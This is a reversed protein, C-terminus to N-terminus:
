KFSWILILFFPILDSGLRSQGKPDTEQTTQEDATKKREFGIVPTGECKGSSLMVTGPACVLCVKSNSPDCFMCNSDTNCPKCLNESIFYGPGCAVCIRKPSLFANKCNADMPFLLSTAETCTLGDLSKVFGEKCSLCVKNALYYECNLIKDSPFCGGDSQFFGKKCIICEFPHVQTTKECNPINILVCNTVNDVVMLGYGDPCSECTKQNKFTRCNVAQAEKCINKDLFYGSQCEMCLELSSYYNCNEIWDPPDITNCVNDFLYMNSQCQLCEDLSRYIKCGFIGKPYEHCVKGTYDLYYNQECTLCRNEDQAYEICYDVVDLILCATGSNYKFYKDECTECQYSLENGLNITVSVQACNEINLPGFCLTSKYGSSYDEIYYNAQCESCEFNGNTNEPSWRNCNQGFFPVCLSDGTQITFIAYETKCEQCKGPQNEFYQNCNEVRGQLCFKKNYLYYENSCKTCILANQEVGYEVCNTINNQVCNNNILTFGVQCTECFKEGNASARLCYNLKEVCKTGTFNPMFGPICQRCVHKLNDYDWGFQLCNKIFKLENFQGRQVYSSEVCHGLSDLGKVAIYDGDCESCGYRISGLNSQGHFYLVSSLDFIAPSAIKGQILQNRSLFTSAKCNAFNFDECFGEDNKSFGKKCVICLGNEERAFCNSEGEPKEICYDYEIINETTNYRYVFDDECQSCYNFWVSQNCNEIQECKRVVDIDADVSGRLAIRFGRDCAACYVTPNTGTLDKSPNQDIRYLLLVCFEPYTVKFDESYGFQSGVTTTLCNSVVGVGNADNVNTNPIESTVYQLINYWIPSLAQDALQRVLIVPMQDKATCVTCSIFTEIPIKWKSLSKPTTMGMTNSDAPNCDSLAICEKIFYEDADGPKKVYGTYGFKCRICGHKGDAATAAYAECNDSSYDTIMDLTQCKFTAHRVVIDDYHDEDFNYNFSKNLTSLDYVKEFGAKCKACIFTNTETDVSPVVIECNDPTIGTVTECTNVASIGLRDGASTDITVTTRAKMVGAPCDDDCSGSNLVKDSKCKICTNTDGTSNYDLMECDGFSTYSTRKMCGYFNEIEMFFSGKVCSDCRVVSAGSQLSFEQCNEKEFDLGTICKNQTASNQFYGERCQACVNSGVPKFSCNEEIPILTCDPAQFNPNCLECETANKWKLCNPNSSTVPACVKKNEFLGYGSACKSCENSTVKSAEQCQSDLNTHPKCTGDMYFGEKCERCESNSNGYKLCPNTAFDLPQECWDNAQSFFYTDLCQDCVLNGATGSYEACDSIGQACVGNSDPVFNSKCVQCRDTDVEFTKCNADNLSNKRSTCSKNPLLYHTNVCQACSNNEVEYNACNEVINILKCQNNELFYGSVCQECLGEGKYKMCNKLPEDPSLICNGKEDRFYGSECEFCISNYLFRSCHKITETLCFEGIKSNVKQDRIDELYNQMKQGTSILQGIYSNQEYFFGDVCDLCDYYNYAVCNDDTPVEECSTGDKNLIKGKACKTCLDPFEAKYLECDPIPVLVQRCAGNKLYFGSSCIICNAEADYHQCNEIVENSQLQTCDGSLTRPKFQSNCYQCKGESNVYQCNDISVKDCGGKRDDFYGQIYDCVECQDVLSNCKLCGEGCKAQALGLTGLFIALKLFTLQIKIREM